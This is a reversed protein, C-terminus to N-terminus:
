ENIIGELFSKAYKIDEIQKEGVIEREINIHGNYGVNKLKAILLPFNVRGDGIRKEEGLYRPDTPYEGDKGHVNRIYEGFIDIADCPNGKGYLLLNAPDFNIGLNGTGVFEITRKLTIPTEQGTEFLLWQGKSKCYEAVEKIARVVEYYEDTKCNEPLFGMHTIVDTVGIKEAFDSGSKLDAIRQERYAIPILGLTHYGDIFNWEQPGSWGCWFASIEVGTQKVAIKVREANDDTLKSMDWCVLQCTYMGMDAVDKFSKEVDDGLHVMVGVKM